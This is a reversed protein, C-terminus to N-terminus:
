KFLLKGTYHETVDIENPTNYSIVNGINYINGKIWWLPHILIDNTSKHLISVKKALLNKGNFRSSGSHFDVRLGNTKGSLNFISNGNAVIILDDMDVQLDFDGINLYSHNIFDDSYLHLVPFSLVGESKILRATNSRIEKINPTTVYVKTIAYDRTINCTNEEKLQLQNNVVKVSVNDILNEGTQIQIKQELGQKIILSIENGVLIKEFDPVIIERTIINGESQFCDKPSCSILLICLTIFTIKKM